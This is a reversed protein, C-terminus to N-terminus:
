KKIVVAGRHGVSRTIANNGSPNHYNESQLARVKNNEEITEALTEQLETTGAAKYARYTSYFFPEAAEKSTGFETAVAYDYVHGAKTRRTTLPGGGLILVSPRILDGFKKTVNKKRLSAKLQGSLVPVTSRMNEIVEDAMDLLNQEFNKGLQATLQQMNNRFRKVSPNYSM